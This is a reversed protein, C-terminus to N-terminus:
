RTRLCGTIYNRENHQLEDIFEDIILSQRTPFNKVKFEITLTFLSELFHIFDSHPFYFFNYMPVNIDFM